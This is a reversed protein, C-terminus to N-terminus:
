GAPVAKDRAFSGAVMRRFLGIRASRPLTRLLVRNASGAIHTRKGAELAAIGERAVDDATMTGRPVDEEAVMALMGPTRTPGPLLGTVRVGFAAMEHHLAESIALLYAETASNNSLAPVGQLGGTSSVILIAGARRERMIGAFHHLLVLNNRVKVNVCELYDALAIDTFLGPSGKGATAVFVGVSEGEIAAIISEAADPQGLDARLTRAEVSHTRQLEAVTEALRAQDRGVAIINFGRQALQFAHARGIGSSGGTVLAWRGERHPSLTAM